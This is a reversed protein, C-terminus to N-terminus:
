IAILRDFFARYRTLAIRLDETSVEEGRDRPDHTTM